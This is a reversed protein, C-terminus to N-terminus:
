PPTAPALRDNNSRPAPLIDANVLDRPYVSGPENSVPNRVIPSARPCACSFYLFCASDKLRFLLSGITCPTNEPRVPATEIAGDNGNRSVGSVSGSKQDDNRAGRNPSFYPCPSSAPCVGVVAVSFAASCVASILTTPSFGSDLYRSPSVM